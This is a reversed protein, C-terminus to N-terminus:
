SASSRRDVWGGYYGAVLGLVHRLHRRHRGLDPRPHLSLQAGYLVRTSSTAGSVPRHRALGRRGDPASRGAPVVGIPDYGPRGAACPDGCGSWYCWSRWGPWPAATAGCAAGSRAPRAAPRPGSTRPSPPRPRGLHQPRRQRRGTEATMRLRMRPDLWAYSLDVLLNRARLDDAIFLIAGQVVPFDKALIANVVLRGIGPRAFVTEIVVAGGLLAGFQLGVVTVVPILANRLAHRLM